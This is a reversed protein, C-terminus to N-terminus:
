ASALSNLRMASLFRLLTVRFVVFYLSRLSFKLTQRAELLSSNACSCCHYVIGATFILVKMRAYSEHIWVFAVVPKSCNIMSCRQTLDSFHCCRPYSSFTSLSFRCLDIRNLRRQPSSRLPQLHFIQSSISFFSMQFLFTRVIGFIKFEWIWRM